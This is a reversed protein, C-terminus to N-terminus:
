LKRHVKRTKRTKRRVNRNSKRSVNKNSKRSKKSVNKNSKRSKKSVNTSKKSVSKNGNWIKAAKKLAHKFMYEPNKAKEEYYIKKVFETWSSM